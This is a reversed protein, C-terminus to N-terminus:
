LGKDRFPRGLRNCPRHKQNAAVYMCMRIYACVFMCICVICVCTLISIYHEPSMHICFTNGGAYYIYIHMHKYTIYSYICTCARTLEPTHRTMGTPADGDWRRKEKILRAPDAPFPEESPRRWGRYPASGTAKTLLGPLTFYFKTYCLVMYRLM